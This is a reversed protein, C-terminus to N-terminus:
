EGLINDITGGKQALAYLPHFTCRIGRETVLDALMAKFRQALERQQEASLQRLMVPFPGMDLDFAWVQEPSDFWIEDTEEILEVAAFGVDLL